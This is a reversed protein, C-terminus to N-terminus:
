HIVPCRSNGSISNHDGSEFADIGVHFKERPKFKIKFKRSAIPVGQLVMKLKYNPPVMEVDHHHLITAISFVLHADSISSGLCQHTGFGYPMYVGPTMHEMRSPLYRDIDFSDPDPFFEQCYHPVGFPIILTTGAPITYGGFDFTNIVKRFVTDFPNYMRLTEMIVRKTVSMKGLREATPQGTENEQYLQDSEEQVRMLIRPYKMLLYLASTLTSATTHMGAFIPALSFVKLESEPLMQPSKRHFELLTSLIDTKAYNRDEKQYEKSMSQFISFFGNKAYKYRKGTRIKDFFNPLYKLSSKAALHRYFYDLDNIQESSPVYENCAWGLSKAVNHTSMYSATVTDNTPIESLIIDRIKPLQAMYRESSFGSSLGRRIKQHEEGDMSLLLRQVDMGENLSSYMNHSRFLSRSKKQCFLNAEPGCLVTYENRYNRIRFVPGVTTYYHALPISPIPRLYYSHGIIPLAKPLIPPRKHKTSSLTQNIRSIVDMESTPKTADSISKRISRGINDMRSILQIRDNSQEIISKSFVAESIGCAEILAILMTEEPSPIEQTIIINLARLYVDLGEPLPMDPYRGTLDVIQNIWLVGGPDRYLINKRILRNITRRRIYNCIETSSFNEIWGSVNSKESQDNLVTLFYDLIINDTTSADVVILRDLETDIRDINALDMLVAGAIAHRLNNDNIEIIGGHERDILLVFLEETILLSPSRDSNSM